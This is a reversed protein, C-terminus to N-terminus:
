RQPYAAARGLRAKDVRVILDEAVPNKAFPNFSIRSSPSFSVDAGFRGPRVLRLTIRPPNTNTSASVNMINGLPIREEESGNRVV